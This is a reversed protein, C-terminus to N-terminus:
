SLNTDDKEERTNDPHWTTKMYIEVVANMAEKSLIIPTEHGDNVFKWYFCGDTGLGGFIERGDTFKISHGNITVTDNEKAEESM